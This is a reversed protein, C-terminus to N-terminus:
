LAGGSVSSENLVAGEETVQELVRSNVPLAFEADVSLISAAVKARGEVAEQLREMPEVGAADVTRPLQNGSIDADALLNLLVISDATNRPPSPSTVSANDMMPDLPQPNSTTPPSLTRSDTAFSSTAPPNTSNVEHVRANIPIHSLPTSNDRPSNNGRVFLDELNVSLKLPPLTSAAMDGDGGGGEIAKRGVSKITLRHLSGKLEEITSKQRSCLAKLQIMENESRPSQDFVDNTVTSTNLAAELEHKRNSLQVLSGLLTTNERM